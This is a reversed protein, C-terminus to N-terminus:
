CDISITTYVALTKQKWLLKSLFQAMEVFIGLKLTHHLFHYLRVEPTPTRCFFEVGVGSTTLFGIGGMFVGVGCGM